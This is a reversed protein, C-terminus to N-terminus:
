IFFFELNVQRESKSQWATSAANMTQALSAYDIVTTVHLSLVLLPPVFAM